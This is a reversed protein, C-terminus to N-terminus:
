GVISISLFFMPCSVWPRRFMENEGKDVGSQRRSQNEM